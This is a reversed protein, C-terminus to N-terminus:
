THINFWAYQITIPLYTFDTWGAGNWLALDMASLAITTSHLHNIYQLMCRSTVTRIVKEISSGQANYLCCLFSNHCVTHITPSIKYGLIAHTHTQTHWCKPISEPHQSYYGSVVMTSSKNDVGLLLRTNDPIMSSIESVEEVQLLFIYWFAHLPMNHSPKWWKKDQSYTCARLMYAYQVYPIDYHM